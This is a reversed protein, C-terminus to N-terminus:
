KWGLDLVGEASLDTLDVHPTSRQGLILNEAQGVALDVKLTVKQGPRLVPLKVVDLLFHSKLTKSMNPFSKVEKNTNNIM